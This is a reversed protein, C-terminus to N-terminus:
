EHDPLYEDAMTASM